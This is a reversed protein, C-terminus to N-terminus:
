EPVFKLTALYIQTGRESTQAELWSIDPDDLPSTYNAFLWTHPGTRVAWPFSTDGVGPLDMVHVVDRAQQDIRYLAFGKPRLSYELLGADEGFPGGIDKRGLLYIEDGHRILEPSDYREPDSVTPCDWAGLDSPSASCVMSGKGTEDGDENRTVAWLTGDAALEIASESNGGLYSPDTGVPEWTRGGDPSAELHLELLGDGYHDGTYSTRLLQGDRVKLDWVVREGDEELLEDTWDGPGCRVSRWIARPEFAMPNTGAQFFHMSVQGEWLLLAPERKDTGLAITHEHIWTQGDDGSSVIHLETETSAFHSPATRWALFLTDGAVLVSVNNNSIQTPIPLADSPIVWRPESVVPTYSGAPVIWDAPDDSPGGEFVECSGAETPVGGSCAVWLLALLKM